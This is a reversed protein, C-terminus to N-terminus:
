RKRLMIITILIIFILVGVSIGVKAGTSMGKKEDDSDDGASPPSGSPTSGSPTSGSPTADSGSPTADSGSSSRSAADAPSIDPASVSASTDQMVSAQQQCTNVVNSGTVKGYTGEINCYSLALPCRAFANLPIFDATPCIACHKRSRISRRAAEGTTEIEDKIFEIAEACGAAEPKRDCLGSDLTNYCKCWEDEPAGSCYASGLIDYYSNGLNELTCFEDNRIRDIELECYGRAVAPDSGSRTFCSAGDGSVVKSANEFNSCYSTVLSEYLLRRPSAPPEGDTNIITHLQRLKGAMKDSDSNDYICRVSGPTMWHMEGGPCPDGTYAQDGSGTLIIKDKRSKNIMVDVDTNDFSNVDAVGLLTMDYSLETNSKDRFKTFEIRKIRDTANHTDLNMTDGEKAMFAPGTNGGTNEYFTVYTNNSLCNKVKISGNKGFDIDKFDQTDTYTRSWHEGNRYEYVEVHCANPDPPAPAERNVNESQRWVSYRKGWGHLQGSWWQRDQVRCYSDPSGFTFGGCRNGGLAERVEETNNICKYACEERSASPVTGSKCKGPVASCTLKRKSKKKFYSGTEEPTVTRNNGM